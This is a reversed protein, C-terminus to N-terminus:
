VCLKEVEVDQWAACNLHPELEDVEKTYVRKQEARGTDVERWWRCFGVAVLRFRGKVM